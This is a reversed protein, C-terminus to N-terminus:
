RRLLYLEKHDGEGLQIWNKLFPGKCSDQGTKGKDWIGAIFGLAEQKWISSVGFEAIEGWSADILDLELVM